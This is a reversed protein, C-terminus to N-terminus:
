DHQLPLTVTVATGESVGSVATIEGGHATVLSKAITLGLGSGRSSQGKYFRDFMRAVDAPAMGEGTDTVTVAVREDTGSVEVTITGGAPTHRLSNSLLNGFVQRM